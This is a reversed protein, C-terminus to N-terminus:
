VYYGQERLKGSAKKSAESLSLMKLYTERNVRITYQRAYGADFTFATMFALPIDRTWISFLADSVTCKNGILEEM